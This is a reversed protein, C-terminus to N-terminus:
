ALSLTWAANFSLIQPHAAPGSWKRDVPRKLAENYSSYFQTLPLEADCHGAWRQLARHAGVGGM